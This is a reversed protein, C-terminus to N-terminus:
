LSKKKRAAHQIETESIIRYYLEPKQKSVNVILLAKVEQIMIWLHGEGENKRYIHRLRHRGQCCQSYNSGANGFHWRYVNRLAPYSASGAM